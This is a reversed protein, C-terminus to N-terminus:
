KQKEIGWLREKTKFKSVIEVANQTSNIKKNESFQM